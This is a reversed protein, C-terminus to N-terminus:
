AGPRQSSSQLVQVARAQCRQLCQVCPRLLCALVIKVTDIHDSAPEPGGSAVFAGTAPCDLERRALVGREQSLARWLAVLALARVGVRTVDGFGSLWEFLNRYGSPTAEFSEVGLLGGIADLAAAVHTDLHTDVGGTIPRMEVIIM